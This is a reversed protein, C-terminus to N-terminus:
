GQGVPAQDLDGPVALDPGLWVVVMANALPGDVESALDSPLPQVESPSMGLVTAVTEADHRFDVTVDSYYYIISVDTLTSAAGEPEIVGSYGADRLTETLAGAAGLVGSANVVLLPLEPVPLVTTDSGGGLIATTATTAQPTTPATSAAPVDVTEIRVQDDGDRNAVAFGVVVALIAVAAATFALRSWQRTSRTAVARSRTESRVDEATIPEVGEIVDQGYRRIADELEPM